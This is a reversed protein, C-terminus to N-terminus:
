RRKIRGMELQQTKQEGDLRGLVDVLKKSRWTQQSTMGLDILKQLKRLLPHMPDDHLHLVEGKRSKLVGSEVRVEASGTYINSVTTRLQRITDFNLTTLM